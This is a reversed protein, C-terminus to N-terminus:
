VLGGTLMETIKGENDIGEVLQQKKVKPKLYNILNAKMTDRDLKEKKSSIVPKSSTEEPGLKGEVERHMMNLVMQDFHDLQNKGGEATRYPGTVKSEKFSKKGRLKTLTADNTLHGDYDSCDNGQSFFSQLFRPLHGEVTNMHSSGQDVQMHTDQQWENPHFKNETAGEGASMHIQAQAVDTDFYRNYSEEEKRLWGSGTGSVGSTRGIGLSYQTGYLHGINGQTEFDVCTSSNQQFDQPVAETQALFSKATGNGEGFQVPHRVNNESTLNEKNSRNNRNNHTDQM